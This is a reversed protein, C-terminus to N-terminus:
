SVILNLVFPLNLGRSRIVRPWTYEYSSCSTSVNLGWTTYFRKQGFYWIEIFDHQTAALHLINFQLQCSSVTTWKHNLLKSPQRQSCYLTAAPSFSRGGQFDSLELNPRKRPAVILTHQLNHMHFYLKRGVLLHHLSNPSTQYGRTIHLHCRAKGGCLGLGNVSRSKHVLSFTINTQSAMVSRVM